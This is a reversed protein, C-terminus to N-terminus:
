REATPLSSAEPAYLLSLKAWSYSSSRHVAQSEANESRESKEEGHAAADQGPVDAELVVDTVGVYEVLHGPQAGAGRDRERPEMEESRTSSGQLTRGKEISGACLGAEADEHVCESEAAGVVERDLPRPIGGEGPRTEEVSGTREGAIPGEREVDDVAARHDHRLP